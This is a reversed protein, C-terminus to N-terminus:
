TREQDIIIPKRKPFRKVNGGIFEVETEIAPQYMLVTGQESWSVQGDDSVLMLPPGDSDVWWQVMGRDKSCVNIITRM